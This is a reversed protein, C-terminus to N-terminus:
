LWHRLLLAAVIVPQKWRLYRWCWYIRSTGAFLTFILLCTIFQFCRFNAQILSIAYRMTKRLYLVEQRAHLLLQFKCKRVLVLLFEHQSNIVQKEEKKVGCSHEYYKWSYTHRVPATKNETLVKCILDSECCYEDMWCFSTRALDSFLTLNKKSHDCAPMRFDLREQKELYCLDLPEHYTNRNLNVYLVSLNFIKYREM